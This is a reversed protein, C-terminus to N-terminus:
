KKTKIDDQGLLGQHGGVIMKIYPLLYSKDPRTPFCRDFILVCHVIITLTNM